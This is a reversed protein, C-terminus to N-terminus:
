IRAGEQVTRNFSGVSLEKRLVRGLYTWWTFAGRAGEASAKSVSLFHRWPCLFHHILKTHGPHKSITSLKRRNCRLTCTKLSKRNGKTSITTATVIRRSPHSIISPMKLIKIIEIIM